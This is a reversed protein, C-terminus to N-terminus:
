ATAATEKKPGLLITDNDNLKSLIAKTLFEGKPNEASVYYVSCENSSGTAAVALSKLKGISQNVGIEVTKEESSGDVKVKLTVNRGEVRKRPRRQRRASKEKKEETKEGEAEKEQQREARKKAIEAEREEKAKAGEATLKIDKAVSRKEEDLEVTFEVTYGRRLILGNEGLHSPNFYVRPTSETAADTGLTIFGFNYKGRRIVTEVMGVSTKGVLNDPVPVLPARERKPKEASPAAETAEVKPTTEEKKQRPARPKRGGQPRRRRDSGGRPRSKKEGEVASM